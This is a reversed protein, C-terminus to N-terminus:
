MTNNYIEKEVKMKIKLQHNKKNDNVKESMEIKKEIKM